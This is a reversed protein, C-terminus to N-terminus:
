KRNLHEDMFEIADDLWTLDSFTAFHGKKGITKYETSVGVEIMRQHMKRSTEPPVVSDGGGHVFMMPPDDKTVYTMPAAQKYLEPKEDPASGLWYVLAQSKIWDFECPGGGVVVCNVRSSYNKLEDPIEGELGDAEHTTGLMASLHGGASYGFVAIQEPDVKLKQSKHRVWRVVRKCDHIQAPFKYAPAHRYNIAIVVYGAKAFKWAHRLMQLKSGNRWAGGHIAILAPFPGEGEPQYIDCLLKYGSEKAYYVNPIKKFEFSKKASDSEKTKKVGKASDSEQLEPQDVAEVAKSVSDPEQATAKVQGATLTM